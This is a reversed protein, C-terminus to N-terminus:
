QGTKETDASPNRELRALLDAFRDPVGEHVVENYMQRLQDGLKAQIDRNLKAPANGDIKAGSGSRAGKGSSQNMTKGLGIVRM